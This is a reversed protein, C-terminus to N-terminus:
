HLQQSHKVIKVDQKVVQLPSDRGLAATVPIPVVAPSSASM